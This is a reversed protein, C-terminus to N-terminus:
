KDLITCLQGALTIMIDQTPLFPAVKQAHNCSLIGPDEFKRHHPESTVKVGIGRVICSMPVGEDELLLEILYETALKPAARRPYPALTSGNSTERRLTELFTLIPL